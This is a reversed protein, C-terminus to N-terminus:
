PLGAQLADVFADIEAGIAASDHLGTRLNAPIADQGAAAGLLAGVVAGRHCNEGGVNANALVGSAFDDGYRCGVCWTAPM